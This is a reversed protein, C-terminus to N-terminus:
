NSLHQSSGTQNKMSGAEVFLHYNIHSIYDVTFGAAMVINVMLVVELEAGWFRLSGM